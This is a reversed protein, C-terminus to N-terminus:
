AMSLDSERPVPRALVAMTPLGLATAIHLALTDGCILLDVQSLLLGGVGSNIRYDARAPRVNAM